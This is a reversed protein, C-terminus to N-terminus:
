KKIKEKYYEYIEKRDRYDSLERELQKSEVRFIIERGSNLLSEIIDELLETTNLRRSSSFVFHINFNEDEKNKELWFIFKFNSKGHTKIFFNNIENIINLNDEKSIKTELSGRFDYYIAKIYSRYKKEDTIDNPKKREFFFHKLIKGNIVMETQEQKDQNPSEIKKLKTLSSFEEM